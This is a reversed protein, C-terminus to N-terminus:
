LRTERKREEDLYQQSKREELQRGDVVYALAHFALAFGWAATIWFSWNVGGPGAIDLLWFFANIILFAGAHWVLGSLYKARRRAREEATQTETTTM